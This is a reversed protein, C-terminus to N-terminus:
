VIDAAGPGRVVTGERMVLAPRRLVELDTRPDGPVAIVDASLGERLSGTDGGIGLAAAAGSTAAVVAEASSLGTEVLLSMETVLGDFPTFRWGADTGAILRVGARRLRAINDINGDLMRRWRDLTAQDDSSRPGTRGGVARPRPAACDPDRDSLRDIVYRGVSLTAAVPTGARAIADAIRPDHEQRGTADILFNAHEIQDAGAALAREIAPGCLCHIGARRGLAHAEDVAARVEAESYSPRWSMTGVTGGGSGMIKIYDAGTKALGRVRRRLEDPGDAEGGFYRCHGGTITLPVGCLHLRPLTAYGLAQARRLDFTTDHMGGCDRLTTIGSLLARRANTFAMAVLTGDPERVTEEFPTGDGPLVLHVHTDILGPLLTRERLDTAPADDPWRGRSEWGRYVGEIRRGRVVLTAPEVPAGGAGDLLRAARIVHQTAEPASGTM